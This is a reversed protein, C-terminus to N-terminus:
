TTWFLVFALVVPSCIAAIRAFLVFKRYTRLHTSEDPSLTTDPQYLPAAELGTDDYVALAM